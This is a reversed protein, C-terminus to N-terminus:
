CVGECVYRSALAHGPTMCVRKRLQDAEQASYTDMSFMVPSLNNIDVDWSDSEVSTAPLQGLLMNRGNEPDSIAPWFSVRKVM